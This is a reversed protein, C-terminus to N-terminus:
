AFQIMSKSQLPILPNLSGYSCRSCLGVLAVGWVGAARRPDARQIEFLQTRHPRGDRLRRETARVTSTIAQTGALEGTTTVGRVVAAGRSDSVRRLSLSARQEPGFRERLVSAFQEFPMLRDVTGPSSPRRRLAGSM